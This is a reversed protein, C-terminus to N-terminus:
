LLKVWVRTLSDLPPMKYIFFQNEDQKIVSSVIIKLVFGFLIKLFIRM